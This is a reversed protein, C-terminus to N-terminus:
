NLYDKELLYYTATAYNIENKLLCNVLYKKDYGVYMEIDKIIDNRIILNQSNDNFSDNSLSRIKPSYIKNKKKKNIINNSKCM